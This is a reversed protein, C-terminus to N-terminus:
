FVIINRLATGRKVAAIAENIEELPYRATILEDLKLTGALYMAALKPIDVHINCAGMKSGIIRICDNAITGPDIQSMVGTPPMGVLIIAGGRAVLEPAQDFAPKAGVTVFVYDAGYGNTIDKLIEPVNDATADIGHTAGFLEAAALKSDQVDIAIITAAGSLAAAQVCNLGVGGTGIIAVSSGPRVKASNTVAGFGTIVGCALLCAADFSIHRPIAVVQSAEVVVYEAFAGTRLGHVIPTGDSTKLPSQEDLAFTELCSGHYGQACCSCRGCSRVLTAVVHDGPRVNAVGAGASEVIGAAEHGYVAPLAGGWGGDAFLIDSHCIACAALKVKVESIGPKALFVDEIVLPKAFQRCVAAKMASSELCITGM